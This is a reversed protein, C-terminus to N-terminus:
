LPETWLTGLTQGVVYISGSGYVAVGNAYDDVPSGFQRTWEIGGSSDYKRVFADNGGSPSQWVGGDTVGVV